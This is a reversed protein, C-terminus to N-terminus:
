GIDDAPLSGARWGSRRPTPGARPGCSTSLEERSFDRERYFVTADLYEDLTMRGQELTGIADRHQPEFEAAALRFREVARARQPTSWANTGLVGGIDFFLHSISVAEPRRRRPAGRLVERVERHGRDGAGPHRRRLGRRDPGAAGFARARRGRPGYADAGGDRSGRVQAPHRASRHQDHRPGILSELYLVDSYAPNKTGTSAWLPRQVKAGKAALRRWRDSETIRVFEAYALRANAIAIRAAGSGEGGRGGIQELRWGGRHGGPERLVLRGIRRRDIPEGARRAGGPGAPLGRRGARYHEVSFLLTININIGEASVAARDGALGGRHRPDQGHRQAPGRRGCGGAEAISGDTDRALQPSVEISVFGDGGDPGTTSPVSAPRRRARVDEVALAEFIEAIAAARPRWAHSPRTTTARRGRHGARLDHPEVDHGSPWRRDPGALEGSRVMGRRLYDLWVSQGLELLDLMRSRTHTSTAMTQGGNMQRSAARGRAVVADPTIGLEAYIREYPASAGFRDIGLVVRTASGATGRMPHAAEIPSAPPCGAAAGRRPVGAVARAFLEHSPMSVVRAKVGQPRSSRARREDGAGGRSGSSMLVVDPTGGEADALVYGGQAVGAAPAYTTRDIYGLKQRTLVLCVPGDRHTVAVKWAEATETADAPRILTLQPIARLATLQEVPQHTPGDEGLGISDHTFVFIVHQNM